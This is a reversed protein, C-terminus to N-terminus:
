CLSSFPNVDWVQCGPVFRPFATAILDGGRVNALVVAESHKVIDGHGARSFDNDEAQPLASSLAPSRCFFGLNPVNEWVIGASTHETPHCM